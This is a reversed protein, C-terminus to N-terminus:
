RLGAAARAASLAERHVVKALRRDGGTVLRKKAQGATSFLPSLPPVDKPSFLQKGAMRYRPDNGGVARAASFADRAQEAEGARAFVLGLMYFAAPYEEDMEIAKRLHRVAMRDRGLQYYVCALVYHAEPSPNASLALKFEALADKWRREAALM